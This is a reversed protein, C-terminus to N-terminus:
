KVRVKQGVSIVNINKIQPNLQILRGLSIKYKAAIGSMTDGSRVTYYQKAVPKPKTTSYEKAINRGDCDTSWGIYNPSYANFWSLISGINTYVARAGARTESDRIEYRGKGKNKMLFVHGYPKYIGIRFELFGVVWINEPPTSTRLRKAKRENGYAVSAASTRKPANIANDVYQLCWGRRGPANTNVSYTQKWAM